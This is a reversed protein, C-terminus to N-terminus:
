QSSGVFQLSDLAKSIEALSAPNEAQFQFTLVYGRDVTVYQATNLSGAGTRVALKGRWFAKGSIEVAEPAGDYTFPVNQYRFLQGMLELYDKGSKVSPVVNANVAIIFISRLNIVSPAPKSDMVFLLTNGTSTAARMVDKMEPDSGLLIAGGLSMVGRAADADMVTWGKPFEFTFGFFHNSYVNGSVSGDDPHRASADQSMSNGSPDAAIAYVPNKPDIRAAERFQAAAEKTRDEARLAAGLHYHAEADEPESALFTTLESIAGDFDGTSYLSFGLHKHLIPFGQTHELADRLVPIAENFQRSRALTMGLTMRAMPFNPYVRLAERAEGVGELDRDQGMLAVALVCHAEADEQWLQLSQRAESEARSYNKVLEAETASALHLTASDPALQLAKLLGVEAQDYEHNQLNASVSLMIRYASNRQPSTAGPPLRKAKGLAQSLFDSASQRRAAAIFEADPTFTIGRELIESVVESTSFNGVILSFLELKDFPLDKEYPLSKLPIQKSQISQALDSQSSFLARALILIAITTVSLRV